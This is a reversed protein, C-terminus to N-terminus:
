FHHYINIIDKLLAAAAAKPDSQGGSLTIIGMTDTYFSIGKNPGDVFYLPHSPDLREPQVQARIADGDRWLRGLLKIKQGAQKAENIEKVSVQNIGTLTFEKLAVRVGFIALSLLVLKVATDWGEVDYRPDREAIGKAQAEALAQSYPLGDAMRTLIYNTTGNLIGEIKLVKAGALSVLGVDLTPLAAATAASFKLQLGNQRALNQLEEFSVLLPGKNATAVHWGRSLAQRLHSLGPEGTQLNSPTVEVWTGQPELKLFTDPSPKHSWAAPDEIRTLLNKEPFFSTEGAEPLLAQSSRLIGRIKFQLGYRAKVESSKEVLLQIFSRGVPGFGCVVLYVTTM